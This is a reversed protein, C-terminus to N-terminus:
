GTYTYFNLLSVASSSMIGNPQSPRLVEICVCVFYVFNSLLQIPTMIHTQVLSQQETPLADVKLIHTQDGDIPSVKTKKDTYTSTWSPLLALVDTDTHHSWCILM